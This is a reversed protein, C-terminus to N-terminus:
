LQPIMIMRASTKTARIASTAQPGAGETSSACGSGGAAGFSGAFGVVGVVSGFSPVTEAGVGIGTGAVGRSRATQVSESRPREVIEEAARGVAPTGFRLILKSDAGFSLTVAAM